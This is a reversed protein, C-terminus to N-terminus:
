RPVDIRSAASSQPARTPWAQPPLRAHEVQWTQTWSPMSESGSTASLSFSMM